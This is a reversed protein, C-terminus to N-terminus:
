AHAARVSIAGRRVAGAMVTLVTDRSSARMLPGIGRWVDQLDVRAIAGKPEKGRRLLLGRMGIVALATPRRDHWTEILSDRWHAAIIRSVIPSVGAARLRLVLRVIAVDERTFMRPTGLPLPELARANPGLVLITRVQSPTIERRELTTLIEAARTLTVGTTTQAPHPSKM